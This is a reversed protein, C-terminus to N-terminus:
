DRGTENSYTEIKQKASRLIESCQKYYDIGEEFNKLADELTIKEKKKNESSQELKALTAEFNPKKTSAM